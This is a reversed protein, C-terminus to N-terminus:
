DEPIDEVYENEQRVRQAEYQEFNENAIVEDVAGDNNNETSTESEAVKKVNKCHICKCGPGCLESPEKKFCSCRKTNCGSKCGCGKLLKAVRDQVIKVNNPTDWVMTLSNSVIKWGFLEINPLTVTNCCALDYMLAVYVCRCWHLHLAQNSPLCDNEYITRDYTKTRIDDLWAHHLELPGMNPNRHMIKRFLSEPSDESYASRNSLFYLCGIIRLFPLSSINMGENCSDCLAPQDNCMSCKTPNPYKIINGPLVVGNQLQGNYIFLAFKMCTSFFSAKGQGMFFSVYDCGSLIYIMQIYKALDTKPVSELENDNNLANHLKTLSLFREKGAAGNLQM